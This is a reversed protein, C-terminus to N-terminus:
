EALPLHPSRGVVIWEDGLSQVTLWGWQDTIHQNHEGDITEIGNLSGFGEVIVDGSAEISKVTFRRGTVHHAAPLFVEITGKSPSVLVTECMPSMTFTDYHPGCSPWVVMKGLPLGPDCLLEPEPDPVFAASDDRPYERQPPECACAGLLLPVAILFRHM